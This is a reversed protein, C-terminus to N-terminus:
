TRQTNRENLVFRAHQAEAATWAPVPCATRLKEDNSAEMVRQEAPGDPRGGQQTDRHEEGQEVIRVEYMAPWRKGTVLLMGSDAASGNAPRYAIGNMVELAPFQSRYMADDAQIVSLLRASALDILALCRTPYLNALLLTPSLLELENFSLPSATSPETAPWHHTSAHSLSIPLSHVYRFSGANFVHLSNTGDSMILTDSGPWSALGWGEKVFPPYPYKGARENVAPVSAAHSSNFLVLLQYEYATGNQYTLQVLKQAAGSGAIIAIGEGFEGEPMRLERLTQGTHLNTVRM